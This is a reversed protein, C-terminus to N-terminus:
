MAPEEMLEEDAPVETSILAPMDVFDNVVNEQVPAIARRNGLQLLEALLRERDMRGYGLGSLAATIKDVPLTALQIVAVSRPLKAALGALLESPGQNMFDKPPSDFESTDFQLQRVPSTGTRCERQPSVVIVRRTLSGTSRPTFSISHHTNSLASVYPTGEEGGMTPTMPSAVLQQAQLTLLAQQRALERQQEQIIQQQQVLQSEFNNTPYAEIQPQPQPAPRIVHIVRRPQQQLQMQQPTPPLPAQVHQPPCVQCQHQNNSMSNRRSSSTISAQPNRLYYEREKMSSAFLLVFRHAAFFARDKGVAILAAHRDKFEVFASGTPRGEASHLFAIGGPAIELPKFFRVVEEYTASYPMGTIKVIHGPDRSDHVYRCRNGLSCYGKLFYVCVGGPMGNGFEYVVEGNVEPRVCTNPMGSSQAQAPPSFVGPSMSPAPSAFPASALPGNAGVTTSRKVNLNQLHMEMRAAETLAMRQIRLRGWKERQALGAEGGMDEGEPSQFRKHISGPTNFQNRETLVGADNGGTPVFPLAHIDLMKNSAADIPAQDMCFM